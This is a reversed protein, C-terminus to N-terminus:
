WSGSRHTQRRKMWRRKCAAMLDSSLSNYATPRNLTLYTIGGERDERGLITETTATAPEPKVSM